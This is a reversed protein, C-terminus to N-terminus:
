SFYLGNKTLKLLLINLKQDIIQFKNNNFINFVDWFNYRKYLNPNNKSFFSLLVQIM